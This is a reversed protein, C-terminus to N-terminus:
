MGHMKMSSFFGSGTSDVGIGIVICVDVGLNVGIGLDIDSGVELLMSAGIFIYQEPSDITDDADEPPDDGPHGGPASTVKAAPTGVLNFTVPRSSRPTDDGAEGIEGEIECSGCADTM